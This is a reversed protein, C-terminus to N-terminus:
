LAPVDVLELEVNTVEPVQGFWTELMEITIEPSIENTDIYIEYINEEYPAVVMGIDYVSRIMKEIKLSSINAIFDPTLAASTLTIKIIENSTVPYMLLRGDASSQILLMHSHKKSDYFDLYKKPDITFYVSKPNPRSITVKQAVTIPNNKNM